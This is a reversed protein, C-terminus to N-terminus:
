RDVGWSCGLCAQRGARGHRVQCSVRRCGGLHGVVLVAVGRGTGLWVARGMAEGVDDPFLERAVDTERVQGVLDVPLADLLAEVEGCHDDTLRQGRPFSRGRVNQVGPSDPRPLDVRM